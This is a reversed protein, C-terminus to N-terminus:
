PTKVEVKEKKALQRLAEEVVDTKSCVRGMRNSLALRLPELADHLNGPIKFSLVHKRTNTADM